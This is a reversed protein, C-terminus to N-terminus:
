TVVVNVAIPPSMKLNEAPVHERWFSKATVQGWLFTGALEEQSFSKASVTEVKQRPCTSGCGKLQDFKTWSPVVKPSSMDM